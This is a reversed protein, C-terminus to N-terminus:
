AVEQCFNNMEIGNFIIIESRLLVWENIEDNWLM